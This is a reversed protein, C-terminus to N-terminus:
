RCDWQWQRVVIVYSLRMYKSLFIPTYAVRAACPDVTYEHKIM